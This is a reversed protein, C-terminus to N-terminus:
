DGVKPPSSPTAPRPARAARRKATVARILKAEEPARHPPREPPTTSLGHRGRPGSWLAPPADLHQALTYAAREYNVRWGRFHTWADDLSREPQWGARELHAVGTDFEERTLEIPDEPHPDADVALGQDAALERMTVYGMRLLPRGEPPAGLPNLSLHLAAADLVALLGIIWSRMPQPSRFYVLTRYSTHSESVEAAWETWQDYLWGLKTVNDILEHRALIEPGWAPVGALGELMTVLRERRNFASYLTPLYAIELAVVVLGGAAAAFVLMTPAAGVPTAFGLTFISSGALRLADPLSGTAPWMLLTFGAMLLLVWVVLLSMLFVPAGWAWLRDRRPYSTIRDSVLLFVERVAWAIMSTIRSSTARPIVMTTLVSIFTVAIITLGLAVGVWHLVTTAPTEGRGTVVAVTSWGSV